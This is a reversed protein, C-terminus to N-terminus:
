RVIHSVSVYLGCTILLALLSIMQEIATLYLNTTLFM